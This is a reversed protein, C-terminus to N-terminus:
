QSCVTLRQPVQPVNHSVVVARQFHGLVQDLEQIRVIVSMTVYHLVTTTSGSHLICVCKMPRTQMGECTDAHACPITEVLGDAVQCFLSTNVM